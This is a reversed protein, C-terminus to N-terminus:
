ANSGSQGVGSSKMSNASLIVLLTFLTFLIRQNGRPDYGLMQRSSANIVLIGLMTVIYAFPERSRYRQWHRFNKSFFLFVLLYLIMFGVLGYTQLINQNGVHGDPRSYISFGWGLIPNERWSELVADSTYTLRGVTGGAELDGELMFSVTNLRQWANDLQRFIVNQTAFNLSIILLLSIAMPILLRAINDIRRAGFVMVFIM